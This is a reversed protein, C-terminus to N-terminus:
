GPQEFLSLFPAPRWMAAVANLRRLLQPVLLSSIVLLVIAIAGTTSLASAAVAFPASEIGTPPAPLETPAVAKAVSSATASSDTAAALAGTPASETGMLPVLPRDSTSVAVPSQRTGAPATVPEVAAPAVSEVM